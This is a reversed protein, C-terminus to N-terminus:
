LNGNQSLDDLDCRVFVLPEFGASPSISAATVKIIQGLITPRFGRLM